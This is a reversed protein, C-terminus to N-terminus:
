GTSVNKRVRLIAMDGKEGLLKVDKHVRLISMLVIPVDIGPCPTPAATSTITFHHCHLYGLSPMVSRLRFM